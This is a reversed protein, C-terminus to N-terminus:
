GRYYGGRVICIISLKNNYDIGDIFDSPSEGSYTESNGNEFVVMWNYVPASM